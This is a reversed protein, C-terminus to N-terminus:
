RSIQLNNGNIEVDSNQSETLIVTTDVDNLNSPKISPLVDADVM